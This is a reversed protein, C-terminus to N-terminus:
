GPARTLEALNTRRSHEAIADVVQMALALVRRGDELTVEPTSRM